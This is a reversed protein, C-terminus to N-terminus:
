RHRNYHEDYTRLVVNSLGDFQCLDLIEVVRHLPAARDVDIRIQMTPVDRALERLVAHIQMLSELKGDCYFGGDADVGLVVQDNSPLRKEASTSDPLVVDIDCDLKRLMTAVLFFILLLFVCDILPSMSVDAEDDSM